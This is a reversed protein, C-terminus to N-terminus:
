ASRGGRFICAGSAGFHQAQWSIQMGLEVTSRRGSAGQNRKGSLVKLWAQWSGELIFARPEASGGPEQTHTTRM